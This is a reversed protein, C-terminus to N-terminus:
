TSRYVDNTKKLLKDYYLLKFHYENVRTCTAANLDRMAWLTTEPYCQFLESM